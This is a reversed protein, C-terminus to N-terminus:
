TLFKAITGLLTEVSFPKEIFGDCGAARIESEDGNMAYATVAIVPTLKLSDSERIRAVAELGSMGPLRIDMLVLDPRRDQFLELAEEGSRACETAYGAAQLVDNILKMNFENDEVILVTKTM